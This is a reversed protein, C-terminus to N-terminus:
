DEVLVHSVGYSKVEDESDINFPDIDNARCWKVLNIDASDQNHHVSVYGGGNKLDLQAVWVGQRVGVTGNIDYIVRFESWAEAPDSFDSGAYWVGFAEAVSDDQVAAVRAYRTGAAQRAAREDNM